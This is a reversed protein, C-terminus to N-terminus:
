IPFKQVSQLEACSPLTKDYGGSSPQVFIRDLMHINGRMPYRPMATPKPMSVSAIPIDCLKGQARREPESRLVGGDVM